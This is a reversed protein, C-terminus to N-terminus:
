YRHQLLHVTSYYILGPFHKYIAVEVEDTDNYPESEVEDVGSELSLVVQDQEIAEAM